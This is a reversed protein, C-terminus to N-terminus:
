SGEIVRREGNSGLQVIIWVASNGLQLQNDDGVM